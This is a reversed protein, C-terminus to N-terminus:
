SKWEYGEGQYLVKGDFKSSGRPHKSITEVQYSDFKYHHQLLSILESKSPEIKPFPDSAAFWINVSRFKVGEVWTYTKNGYRRRNFHFTGEFAIKEFLLTRSEVSKIWKRVRKQYTEDSGEKEVMEDIVEVLEDFYVDDKSNVVAESKDLCYVEFADAGSNFAVIVDGKHLFGNVEFRLAPMEKYVVHHFVVAGWSWIISKKYSFIQKIYNCMEDIYEKEM